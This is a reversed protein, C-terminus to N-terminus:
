EGGIAQYLQLFAREVAPIDGALVAGGIRQEHGKTIWEKYERHALRWFSGDQFAKPDAMSHDAPVQFGRAANALSHVAGKDCTFLQGSTGRGWNGMGNDLDLYGDGILGIQYLCIARLVQRYDDRTIQCKHPGTAKFWQVCDMM